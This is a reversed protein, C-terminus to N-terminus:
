EAPPSSYLIVVNQDSKFKCGNMSKAGDQTDPGVAPLAHTATYFYSGMEHLPPDLYSGVRIARRDRGAFFAGAYILGAFLSFEAPFIKRGGSRLSPMPRLPVGVFICFIAFTIM